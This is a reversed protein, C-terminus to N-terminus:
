RLRECGRYAPCSPLAGRQRETSPTTSPSLNSGDSPKCPPPSRTTTSTHGLRGRGSGACGGRACYIPMGAGDKRPRRAPWFPRRRRSKSAHELPERLGLSGPRLLPRAFCGGPAVIARSTTNATTPRRTPITTARHNPRRRTSPHRHASTLARRLSSDMRRTGEIAVRVRADCMPMAQTLDIADQHRQRLPPRKPAIRERREKLRGHRESDPRPPKRRTPVAGERM